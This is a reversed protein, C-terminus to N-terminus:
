VIDKLHIQYINNDKILFLQSGRGVAYDYCLTKGEQDLTKYRVVKKTQLSYLYVEPKNNYGRSFLVADKLIAFAHSGEIPINPFIEYGTESIKVIPFDDYYYINTSEPAVNLAYCDAIYPVKKDSQKVLDLYNFTQQGNEDFCRLGSGMNEDFYSVWIDGNKTTQVDQIADDLSFRTLLNGQVDFVSANKTYGEEDDTRASVLLWNENLPQAFEFSEVVLPLTIRKTEHDLLHFIEHSYKGTVKKETLLILNGEYDFSVHFTDIAPDIDKCNLFHTVKINQM